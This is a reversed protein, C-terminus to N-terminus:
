VACGNKILYELCDKHSNLAACSYTKSNIPMHMKHLYELCKLHGGDAAYDCIDTNIPCGNEYLYKLCDISGNEAAIEMTISNWPIRILVDHIRELCKVHNYKVATTYDNSICCNRMEKLESNLSSLLCDETISFM